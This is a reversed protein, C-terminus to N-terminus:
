ARADGACRNLLELSFMCINAGVDFVTMGPRVDVGDQRFYEGIFHEFRRELRTAAGHVMLGNSLVLPTERARQLRRERLVARRQKLATM